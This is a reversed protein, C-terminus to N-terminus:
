FADGEFESDDRKAFTGLFDTGTRWFSDLSCSSADFSPGATSDVEGEECIASVSVPVGGREEHPMAGLISPRCKPDLFESASVADPRGHPQAPLVSLADGNVEHSGVVIPIGAPQDDFIDSVDSGEADIM